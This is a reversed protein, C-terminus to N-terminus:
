AQALVRSRRSRGAAHKKAHGQRFSRVNRLKWQVGPLRRIDPSPFLSWDPDGAEFGLLFASDAETLSTLITQHMRTFTAEHLAYDFKSRTMGEFEATFAAAHDKMQGGLLESIPRNHSVLAAILGHRVDATLGDKNLLHHVDFLDRPHQRDLAACLKGGFLEAHSVVPVEVFREFAEQVSTSCALRRVAFLHGRLIPNVEIKIQTRVRQVHLKVEMGEGQEVLTARSGPWTEEIRAKIRVLIGSIASLAVDRSDFPLYTLDIDVSLRPLDRVFLNIATGGKLALSDEQAIFPLVDLLLAVQSRYANIM